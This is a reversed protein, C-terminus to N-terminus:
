SDGLAPAKRRGRWWGRLLLAYVPLYELGVLWGRYRGVGAATYDMLVHYSLLVTATFLLLAPQPFFCLFPVLWTVYWPFVSPSLLLVAAILLFSARLPETGRAACHVGLGGLGGVAVGTAVSEQGSAALIVGYLSENNRWQEAYVLFGRLLNWGADGYPLLTALGAAGFLPFSWWRGRWLFVPAMVAAFWKSMTAAALALISVGVRQRIILLNALLLGFLALSDNHGSGAFELVVLPCWAYLLARVPPERRVRLLGVIVLLTALDFGVSLLKFGAPGDLYATLRFLLETVPAYATPFEKGPFKEFEAPHSGARALDAPVSLYPNHGALQIEGEWLYRYFDHSLTPPLPFLTARFIVAALLVVALATATSHPRSVVWRVALFYVISAALGTAIVGVVNEDLPHQWRLILFAAELLAALLALALPQPLRSFVRM